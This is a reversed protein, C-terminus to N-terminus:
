DESYIVIERKQKVEFLYVTEEGAEDNDVIGSIAEDYDKQAKELTDHFVMDRSATDFVMWKKEV